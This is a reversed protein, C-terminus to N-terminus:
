DNRFFLLLLNSEIRNAEICLSFVFLFFFNSRITYMSSCTSSSSNSNTLLSNWNALHNQQEIPSISLPLKFASDHSPHYPNKLTPHCSFSLANSRNVLCVCVFMCFSCRVRVFLMCFFLCLSSWFSTEVLRQSFWAISRRIVFRIIRLRQQLCQLQTTVDTRSSKKLLRCFLSFSVHVNKRRVFMKSDTLSLDFWLSLCFPFRESSNSLVSMCWERFTRHAKRRDFWQFSLDAISALFAFFSYFTVFWLIVPCALAFNGVLEIKYRRIIVHLLSFSSLSTLLRFSLASFFPPLVLEVSTSTRHFTSSDNEHDSPPTPLAFHHPNGSM